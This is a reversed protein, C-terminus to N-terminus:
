YRQLSFGIYHIIAYKCITELRLFVVFLIELGLSLSIAQFARNTTTLLTSRCTRCIRIIM